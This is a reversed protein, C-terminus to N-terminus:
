LLIHCHMSDLKGDVYIRIEKNAADRTAVVWHWKDDSITTTGTLRLNVGSLMTSETATPTHM